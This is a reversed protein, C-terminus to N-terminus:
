ETVKETTKKLEIASEIASQAYSAYCAVAEAVQAVPQWEGREFSDLIEQEEEGLVPETLLNM